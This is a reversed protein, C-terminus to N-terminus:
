GRCTPSFAVSSHYVILIVFAAVRLADVYHRGAPM